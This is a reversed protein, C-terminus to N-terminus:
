GLFLKEKIIKLFKEKSLGKILMRKKPQKEGSQLLFFSKPHEFFDSLFSILAENAKGKERPERVKIKFYHNEIEIKKSKAKAIVKLFLFIGENTEKFPIKLFENM